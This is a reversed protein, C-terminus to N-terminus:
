GIRDGDVGREGRAAETDADDAIQTLNAALTRMESPTLTHVRALLGDTEDLLRERWPAHHAAAGVLLPWAAGPM